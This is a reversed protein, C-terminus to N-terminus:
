NTEKVTTQIEELKIWFFLDSRPPIVGKRGDSGYAMPFPIELFATGGKPVDTIAVDWGQIVGGRGVKFAYPKGVKYSNDFSTGDKFFGYYNVYVRDNYTPKEAGTDKVVAVKVDGNKTIVNQDYEGAKYSAFAAKAEALTEKQLTSQESGIRDMYTEQDEILLVKVHYDVQKSQLFEQPPSSLSDVPVYVTASDGISMTRILSLLPNKATRADMQTPIQITPRVGATRSDSLTNDFEDTIQFDITVVQTEKAKVGPNNTHNKYLYGNELKDFDTNSKISTDSKCAIFFLLVLFLYKSEAMM